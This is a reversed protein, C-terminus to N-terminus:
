EGGVTGFASCALPENLTDLLGRLVECWSNSTDQSMRALATVQSTKLDGKSILALLMTLDNLAQSAGWVNCAIDSVTIAPLTIVENTKTKHIIAPVMGATKTGENILTGYHIIAPVMGAGYLGAIYQRNEPTDHFLDPLLNEPFKRGDNFFRYASKGIRIIVSRGDDNNSQLTFVTNGLSPCLVADGAKFLPCEDTTNNTTNSQANLNSLNAM